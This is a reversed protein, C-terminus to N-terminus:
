LLRLQKQAHNTITKKPKKEIIHILKWLSIFPIERRCDVGLHILSHETTSALKITQQTSVIIWSELPYPLTCLFHPKCQSTGGDYLKLNLLQAEPCYECRASALVANACRPPPSPTSCWLGMPVDCPSPWWPPRLPQVATASTKGSGQRLLTGPPAEASARFPFLLASFNSCLRMASLMRSKGEFCRHTVKDLRQVTTYFMFESVPAQGWFLSPPQEFLLKHAYASCLLPSSVAWGCM